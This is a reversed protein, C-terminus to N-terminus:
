RQKIRQASGYLADHYEELISMDIFGDYIHEEARRRSCEMIKMVKEVLASPAGQRKPQPIYELELSHGNLFNFTKCQQHKPLNKFAHTNLHTVVPAYRHDFSLTRVAMYSGFNEMDEDSTRKGYKKGNIFKSASWSAM